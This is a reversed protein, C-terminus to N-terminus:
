AARAITQWQTPNLNLIRGGIEELESARDCDEATNAVYTVANLAGWKSYDRDRILNELISNKESDNFAFQSSLVEVAEVPRQIAESSAAARMLDLYKNFAQQDGSAKLTDRLELMLAKDNANITDISYEVIGDQKLREGLHRKAFGADNITAGNLCWLRHIFPAVVFGGLGIESNTITIGSEVIDGKKVEGKIKDFVVKIYLKRETVDCSAINNQDVGPMNLLTDLAMNAIIDNDIRRYANSMFARIKGDMTRVMRRSPAAIGRKNKQPEQHLWHNVNGALLAPANQRMRDYYKKPIDTHVSIQGHAHDTIKDYQHSGIYASDADPKMTIDRTDAILDQKAESQRQLEQALEILTKGQKM